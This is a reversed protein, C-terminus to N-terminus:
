PWLRQNKIFGHTIIWRDHVQFCPLRVHGRESESAFAHFEGEENRFLKGSINTEGERAMHDFLALLRTQLRPTLGLIFEEAPCTGDNRIAYEVSRKKRPVAKHDDPTTM